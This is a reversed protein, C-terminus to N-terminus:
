MLVGSEKKKGRSVQSESVPRMAMSNVAHTEMLDYIERSGEPQKRWIRICHAKARLDSNFIHILHATLVRKDDLPRNMMEIASGTNHISILRQLPLM